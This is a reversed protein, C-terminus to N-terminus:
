RSTSRGSGEPRVRRKDGEAPAAVPPSKPLGLAERLCPGRAGSKSRGSSRNRSSTDAPNMADGQGEKTPAGPGASRFRHDIFCRPASTHPMVAPCCTIVRTVAANVM